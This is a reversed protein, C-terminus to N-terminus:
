ENGVPHGMREEWVPHVIKEEEVPYGMKEEWVPHVM